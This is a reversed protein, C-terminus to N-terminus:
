ILQSKKRFFMFYPFVNFQFYHLAVALNPYVIRGANEVSGVLMKCGSKFLRGGRQRCVRPATTEKRQQKVAVGHELQELAFVPLM